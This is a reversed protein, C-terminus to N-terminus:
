IAVLAALRGDDIVFRGRFRTGIEATGLQQRLLITFAEGAMDPVIEAAGFGFFRGVEPYFAKFVAEKAAFSMRAELGTQALEAPTHLIEGRLHDPFDVAEALDLGLHTVSRRNAVCALALGNDHTISGIAGEPWIPARKTDRAIEAAPFGAQLLAARAARRGAAFEARRKPIARAVAAQETGILGEESGVPEM